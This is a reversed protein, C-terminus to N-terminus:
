AFIMFALFTVTAGLVAGAIVEWYTHAGLAIRSQAVFLALILCLLSVKFSGSFLTLAMWVSFAIASHGSPMGGSLPHGKGFYAKLGIVLILVLVISILAVEQFTHKALSPGREFLESLYPFLVIYGVVVAGFVTILVAGAAVDKVIRAKESFEPSVMDVVHEIATNLMESLLVLTIAISIILFDTREVGFAYSVVLVVAAATLHYKVHRQTRAAYLIGEIANNASEILKRLPM